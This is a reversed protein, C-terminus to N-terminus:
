GGLAIVVDAIVLMVTAAAAGLMSYRDEIVYAFLAFVFLVVAIFGLLPITEM